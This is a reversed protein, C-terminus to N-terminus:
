LYLTNIAKLIALYDEYKSPKQFFYDAGSDLAKRKENLATTFVITPIFRIDESAKLFKLVDYGDVRPMNLDLLILDPRPPANSELHDILEAGDSLELCNVPLRSERCADLVMFRDDPDDDVIFIWKQAM